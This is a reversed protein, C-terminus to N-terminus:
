IVLRHRCQPTSYSKEVMLLPSAHELMNELSMENEVAQHKDCIDRRYNIGLYQNYMYRWLIELSDWDTILGDTVPNHCQMDEINSTKHHDAVYRNPYTFVNM